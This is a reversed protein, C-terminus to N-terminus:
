RLQAALGTVDLLREVTRSAAVIRLSGGRQQLALQAVLLVRLGSSDVFGLGALDLQVDHAREATALRALVESVEACNSADVEGEIAVTVADGQEGGRVDIACGESNM